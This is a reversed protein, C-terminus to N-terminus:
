HNWDRSSLIENATFNPLNGGSYSTLPPPEDMPAFTLTFSHWSAFRKRPLNMLSRFRYTMLRPEANSLSTTAQRRDKDRSHLVCYCPRMALPWNNYSSTQTWSM